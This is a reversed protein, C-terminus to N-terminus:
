IGFFRRSNKYIEDEIYSYEEERLEAIKEIVYKTYLPENEEKWRFPMPTLYPSDTEALINKLDINKAVEQILPANKFSVIWSFSFMANPAYELVELAKDLSESWSHFVFNKFRKEKLIAFVDEFADRNHIILPLNLKDALDIQSKFFDKQREKQDKIIKEKEEKSLDSDELDKYLWYYDLGAEWIAVIKKKNDNYIKELAEIWKDLEIDYAHNPHIAISTYIKEYEKAFEIIEKSTELNTWIIIMAYGGNNFFNFIVKKSDKIKNLNPHCHTDIIKWM